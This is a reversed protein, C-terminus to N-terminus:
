LVDAMARIFLKSSHIGSKSHITKVYSRCTEVTISLREAIERTTDGTLLEIAVDAERPTLDFLKAIRERREEARPIVALASGKPLNGGGPLTDSRFRLEARQWGHDRRHALYRDGADNLPRVRGDELLLIAPEPIWGMAEQVDGPRVPQSGVTRNLLLAQRIIPDLMKLRRVEHPSFDGGEHIGRYFTFSTRSGDNLEFSMGLVYDIDYARMFENYYTSKRLEATSLYRNLAATANELKERVVIEPYPNIAHYDRQYSDISEDPIGRAMMGALAGNSHYSLTGIPSRVDSWLRETLADVFGPQLSHDAAFGAYQLVRREWERESMRQLSPM